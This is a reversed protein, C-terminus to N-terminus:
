HFSSPTSRPPLPYSHLRCCLRNHRHLHWKAKAKHWRRQVSAKPKRGQEQRCNKTLQNVILLKKTTVRSCRHISSKSGSIRHLQESRVVHGCLKAGRSLKRAAMKM